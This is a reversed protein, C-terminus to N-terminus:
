GTYNQKASSDDLSREKADDGNTSTVGAANTNAHSDIIFRYVSALASLEAEPTADPRPTYTIRSSTMAVRWVVSESV